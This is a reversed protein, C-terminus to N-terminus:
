VRGWGGEISSGLGEGQPAGEGTPLDFRYGNQCRLLTQTDHM